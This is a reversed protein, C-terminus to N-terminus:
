RRLANELNTLVLSDTEVKLRTELASTIKPDRLQVRFDCLSQVAYVRVMQAADDLKKLLHEVAASDHTEGLFWMTHSRIQDDHSNSFLILDEVKLGKLKDLACGISFFTEDDNAELLAERLAIIANTTEQVEGFLWSKITAIVGMAGVEGLLFAATRIVESDPDKLRKLASEMGATGSHRLASLACRRVFPDADDTAKILAQTIQESPTKRRALGCSANARTRADTSELDKLLKSESGGAQTRAPEEQGRGQTGQSVPQSPTGFWRIELEELTEDLWREYWDLFSNDSIIIPAQGSEDMYIVRDRLEGSIVLLAYYTCGQSALTITGQWLVEDPTDETFGLKEKWDRDREWKSLSLHCPRALFDKPHGIEFYFADKWRDLSYIGYFPGAGGNGIAKLFCRYGEPLRIGHQREFSALYEESALPEMQFQHQKVGLQDQYRKWGNDRLKQLKERIRTIQM